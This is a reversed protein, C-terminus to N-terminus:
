IARSLFGEPVGNAVHGSMFCQPFLGPGRLPAVGGRRRQLVPVRDPVTEQVEEIFHREATTSQKRTSKAAAQYGAAGGRALHKSILGSRKGRTGQEQAHAVLCGSSLRHM